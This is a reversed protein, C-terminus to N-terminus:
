AESQYLMLKHETIDHNYIIKYPNEEMLKHAMDESFSDSLLKYVASLDTNRMLSSHADSAILYIMNHKLMYMATKKVHRGFSGLLSGKNLQLLCGKKIWQEAMNPAKQIYPYREPHAIIPIYGLETLENIIFEILGLDKRYGFELLLYRSHNITIVKGKKLLMPLEETAYTEMGSVINIPIKENAAEAKLRNLLTFYKEDYYNEYLEEVNCHPTAAITHVGNDAAIRLMHIAERMSSAGDDIGPMIHAHIDIM